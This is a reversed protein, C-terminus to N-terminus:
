GILIVFMGVSGRILELIGLTVMPGLLSDALHLCTFLLIRILGTRSSGALWPLLIVKGEISMVGLCLSLILLFPCHLQFRLLYILSNRGCIVEELQIAAQLAYIVSVFIKYVMKLLFLFKKLLLKHM